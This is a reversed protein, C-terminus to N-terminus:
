YVYVDNLKDIDANKDSFLGGDSYFLDNYMTDRRVADQKISIEATEGNIVKIQSYDKKVLVRSLKDWGVEKNVNSQRDGSFYIFFIGILVVIYIWGISFKRKEKNGDKSETKRKNEAM